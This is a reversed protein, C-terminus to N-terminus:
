VAAVEQHAPKYAAKQDDSLAKWQESLAKIAQKHSMGTDDRLKQTKEHTFM